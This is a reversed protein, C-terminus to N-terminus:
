VGKPPPPPTKSDLPSGNMYNQPTTFPDSPFPLPPQPYLPFRRRILPRVDPVAPHALSDLFPLLRLLHDDADDGVFSPIPVGNDLQFAFWQPSNDVILTKSLDRGLLRLDKLYHGRVLTTADYFLAHSFINGSPDLFKLVPEAYPRGSATFVVLEFSPSVRSLFEDLHPRKRVFVECTSRPPFRLPMSFSYDHQSGDNIAKSHVLTEDLDLVLTLEPAGKKKAPLIPLRSTPAKIREVFAYNGQEVELWGQEGEGVGYADGGLVEDTEEELKAAESFTKSCRVGLVPM